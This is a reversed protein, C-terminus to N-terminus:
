RECGFGARVKLILGPVGRPDGALAEYFVDIALVIKRGLHRVVRSGKGPPAGPPSRVPLPAKGPRPVPLPGRSLPRQLSRQLGRQLHGQLPRLLPKLLRV